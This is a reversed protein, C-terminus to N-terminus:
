ENLRLGQGCKMERSLSSVTSMMDRGERRVRSFTGEGDTVQQACPSMGRNEDEKILRSPFIGPEWQEKCMSAAM